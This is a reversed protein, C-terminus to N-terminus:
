DRYSPPQTHIYAYIGKLMTLSSDLAADNTGWIKKGNKAVSVVKGGSVAFKYRDIGVKLTDSYTAAHTCILSHTLSFPM